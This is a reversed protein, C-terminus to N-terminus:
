KILTVEMGEIINCHFFAKQILTDYDSGYKEVAEPHFHYTINVSSFHHPLYYPRRYGCFFDFYRESFAHKHQPDSYTYYSNWYVLRLVCKGDEKLVRWCEMLVESPNDLHELIDNMIILDISNPEFPYPIENLDHVMDVGELYAIDINTFEILETSESTETGCGLNLGKM